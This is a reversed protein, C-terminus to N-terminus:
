GGAAPQPPAIVAVWIDYLVETAARESDLGSDVESSAIYYVRKGGLILATALEHSDRGTSALGSAIRLHHRQM